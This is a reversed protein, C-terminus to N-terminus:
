QSPLAKCTISIGEDGVHKLIVHYRDGGRNTVILLCPLAVDEPLAWRCGNQMPTLTPSQKGNTIALDIRGDGLVVFAGDWFLDGIGSGHLSNLVDQSTHVEDVNVLKRTSLDLVFPVGKDVAQKLAPMSIPEEQATPAPGVARDVIHATSVHSGMPRVSGPDGVIFFIGGISDEVRTGPPIDVHFLNADFNPDNVIVNTIKVSNLSELMGDPFFGSTQGETPFWVGPKLERFTASFRTKMGDPQTLEWQPVCFGRSPDVVGEWTCRVKPAMPDASTFRIRMVGSNADTRLDVKEHAEIAKDLAAFFRGGFSLMPHRAIRFFLHPGATIQAGGPGSPGFRPIYSVSMAGDWACTDEQLAERRGDANYKGQTQTIKIRGSNDGIVRQLEYNRGCGALEEEYYRIFAQPVGETRRADELLRKTAARDRSDEYEVSCQYNKLSRQASRIRACLARVDNNEAPSGVEPLSFCVLVVVTGLRVIRVSDCLM